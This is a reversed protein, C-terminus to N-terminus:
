EEENEEVKRADTINGQEDREITWTEYVTRGALVCEGDKDLYVGHRRLSDPTRAIMSPDVDAGAKRHRRHPPRMPPPPMFPVYHPIYQVDPERGERLRELLKPLLYALLFGVVLALFLFLIVEISSFTRGAPKTEVVKEETQIKTKITHREEGTDVGADKEEESMNVIKFGHRHILQTNALLFFCM